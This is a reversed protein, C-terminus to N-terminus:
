LVGKGQAAEWIVSDVCGRLGEDQGTHATHSFSKLKDAIQPPLNEDVKIEDFGPFPLSRFIKKQWPLLLLLPQTSM